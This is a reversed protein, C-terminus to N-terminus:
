HDDAIAKALETLNVEGTVNANEDYDASTILDGDVRDCVWGEERFWRELAAEIRRWDATM